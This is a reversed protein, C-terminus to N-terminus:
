NKILISILAPIDHALMRIAQTLSTQGAARFLNLVISRLASWNLAPIRRTILSADEGLVVDRVWHLGNEIDRHGRIILAAAQAELELDSLYYSTTGFVYGEREGYREVVILRKAQPWAAVVAAPAAYVRTWREVWRGHSPDLEVHASVPRQASQVQEFQQKLTGQNGKVTVVYHNGQEVLQQITKKATCPM